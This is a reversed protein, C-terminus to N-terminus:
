VISFACSSPLPMANDNTAEAEVDEDNSNCWWMLMFWNCDHTGYKAGESGAGGGLKKASNSCSYKFREHDLTCISGGIYRIIHKVLDDASMVVVAVVVVVVVAQEQDISDVM